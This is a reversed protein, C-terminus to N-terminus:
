AMGVTPLRGPSNNKEVTKINILWPMGVALCAFPTNIKNTINSVINSMSVKLLILINIKKFNNIHYFMYKNFTVVPM